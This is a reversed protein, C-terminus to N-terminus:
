LNDSAEQRPPGHECGTLYHPIQSSCLPMPAPKRRTTSPIRRGIMVGCFEEDEYDGLISEIPWNTASTGLPGLEVGGRVIRILFFGVFQRTDCTYSKTYYFVFIKQSAFLSQPNITYKSRQEIKPQPLPFILKV